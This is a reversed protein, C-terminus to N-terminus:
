LVCSIIYIDTRAHKIFDEFLSGHLNSCISIKYWPFKNLWDPHNIKETEYKMRENSCMIRSMGVHHLIANLVVKTIM